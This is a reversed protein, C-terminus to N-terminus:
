NDGIGFSRHDFDVAGIAACARGMYGALFFVDVIGNGVAQRFTRWVGPISVASFYNPVERRASVERGSVKDLKRIACQAGFSRPKGQSFFLAILRPEFFAFAALRRVIGERVELAAAQQDYVAAALNHTGIAECVGAGVIIGFRAM